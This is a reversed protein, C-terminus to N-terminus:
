KEGMVIYASKAVLKLESSTNASGIKGKVFRIKDFSDDKSIEIGTTPMQISKLSELQFDFNAHYGMSWFFEYDTSNGTCSISTVSNSLGQLKIEGFKSTLSCKKHLGAIKLKSFTTEGRLEELSEIIIKDHKSNLVLSQVVGFDIRSSVSTLDLTVIQDVEVDDMYNLYLSSKQIKGARFEGYSLDANLVNFNRAIVNGHAIELDVQATMDPLFVDGFKNNLRLTMHAPLYVKYNVIIRQTGGIKNAIAYRSKQLMGSEEGIKTTATIYDTNKRIDAYVMDNLMDLHEFKEGKVTIEIECKVSDKNWIEVDVDGYKNSVNVARIGSASFSKQIFRSDSYAQASGTISALLLLCTITFNLLKM